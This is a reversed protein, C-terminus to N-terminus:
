GKDREEGILIWSVRPQRYHTGVKTTERSDEQRHGMDIIQQSLSIRSRIFLYVSSVNNIRRSFLNIFREVADLDSFILPCRRPPRRKNQCHWDM